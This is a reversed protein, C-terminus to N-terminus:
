LLGIHKMENLIDDIEFFPDKPHSNQLYKVSGINNKRGYKEYHKKVRKNNLRRNSEELCNDCNIKNKSRTKFRSGCILCNKLYEKNPIKYYYFNSNYM